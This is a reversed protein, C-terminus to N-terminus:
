RAAVRKRYVNLSLRGIEWLLHAVAIVTIVLLGMYIGHNLANLHAGHVGQDLATHRLTVYAHGPSTLAMVLPILGLAQITNQQIRRPGQWSGRVLDVCRWGLQLVNIGVVWWYFQIWVPALQYPSAHLYLAGQGLLLWPHAPILLLWALFLFGFIAETVAMAFSRPRKRYGATTEAPPLASPSWDFPANALLGRKSPNRALGFEIAAFILTVWAATTMLVAPVRLAAGALGPGNAIGGNFIQVVSVISYIVLCWFCALRLVYWYMPFVAPGILYRQPLYRGAVQMPPGIQKLWAEMEDKTLPRGLEAEKDELQSELNAKLEAIIDDQRDWPLHKKVAQLYRDLLEM